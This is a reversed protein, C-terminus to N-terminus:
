SCPEPGPCFQWSFRSADTSALSNGKSGLAELTKPHRTGDVEIIFGYGTIQEDIHGGDAYVIRVSRVQRTALGWLPTIRSGKTPTTILPAIANNIFFARWDKGRGCYAYSQGISICAADQKNRYGLMRLDGRQTIVRESGPRADTVANLLEVPQQPSPPPGPADANSTLFGDLRDLVQAVADRGQPLSGTAGAAIVLAALGAALRRRRRRTKAIASRTAAVAARADDSSVPEALEDHLSRLADRLRDEPLWDSM